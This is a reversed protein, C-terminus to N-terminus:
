GRRRACKFKMLCNSCHMSSDTEVTSEVLASAHQGSNLSLTAMHVKMIASWQSSVLIAALTWLIGHMLSDSAIESVLVAPDTTSLVISADPM